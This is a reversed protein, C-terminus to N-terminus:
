GMPLLSLWGRRARIRCRGGGVPLMLGIGLWGRMAAARSEQRLSELMTLSKQLGPLVEEFSRM